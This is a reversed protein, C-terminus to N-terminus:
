WPALQAPFYELNKVSDFKITMYQRQQKWIPSPYDRFHLRFLRPIPRFWKGMISKPTRTVVFQRSLQREHEYINTFKESQIVLFPFVEPPQLSLLFPQQEFM